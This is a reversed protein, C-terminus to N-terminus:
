VRAGVARGSAGSFFFQCACLDEPISQAIEQLTRAFDPNDQMFKFAAEMQKVLDDDAGGDAGMAGGMGLERMVDALSVEASPGALDPAAAPAPRPTSPTGPAVAAPPAAAPAGDKFGDLAGTHAARAAPSRKCGDDAWPACFRM